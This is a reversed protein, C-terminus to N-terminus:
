AYTWFIYSWNVPAVLGDGTGAIVTLAASPAFGAVGFGAALGAFYAANVGAANSRYLGCSADPDFRTRERKWTTGAASGFWIERDGREAVDYTPTGDSVQNSNSGM